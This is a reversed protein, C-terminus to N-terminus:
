RAADCIRCTVALSPLLHAAIALRKTPSCWQCCPSAAQATARSMASDQATMRTMWGVIANNLSTRVKVNHAADCGSLDAHRSVSIETYMRALAHPLSEHCARTRLVDNKVGSQSGLLMRLASIAQSEQPLHAQGVHLKSREPM